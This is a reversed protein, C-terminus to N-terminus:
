VTQMGVKYNKSSKPLIGTFPGWLPLAAVPLEGTIDKGKSHGTFRGGTISLSPLAGARLGRYAMVSVAAALDAPLERIITEIEAAAPMEIRKVPKRRPRANSGRFPNEIATHRRHIWTFFSSAAATTLQVTASSNEKGAKESKENRLSYIFDDAQAPTL